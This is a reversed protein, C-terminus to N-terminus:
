KPLPAVVAVCPLQPPFFLAPLQLRRRGRKGAAGWQLMWFSSTAMTQILPIGDGGIDGQLERLPLLWGLLWPFGM